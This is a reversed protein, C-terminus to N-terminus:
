FLFAISAQIGDFFRVKNRSFNPDLGSYDFTVPDESSVTNFFAMVDYGLKMQIGETPYWMLSLTGQLEPVFSIDTLARKNEPALKVGFEYKVRTKTINLFMAGQLDMMVAFGHGLYYESQFGAHVGYM